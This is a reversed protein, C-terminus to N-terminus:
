RGGKDKRAALLAEQYVEVVPIKNKVSLRRCDEYEPSVHHIEGERNRSIKVKVRGFPTEVSEVRRELKERNVSFYRVGITTSERFFTEVIRARSSEECIARVTTGPRNKKMQIPIFSVDLAGQAFLRDMLPEFFEPNMDDIDTEVLIVRDQPLPSRGTGLFIRLMNPINGLDRDGLGYGVKEIEMDPMDGFRDAIAMILAAGTPTVLEGEVRSDYVPVGRLLEVTAPAPVPLFGHRSQIMGRGLPIRSAYVADVGLFEIGILSGIIDVISDLAGVEHFHVQDPKTQHIRGEVEAIRRFVEVGAQKIEKELRGKELLNRIERFNREKVSKKEPRIRIHTGRLHARKGVTPVIEFPELEIKGLGEEIIKQPVGLDILGGLIMNGCIGSFCDFYAIKM